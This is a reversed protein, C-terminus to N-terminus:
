VRSEHDGPPHVGARAWVQRARVILPRNLKLLSITARGISTQGIVYDGVETWIFHERWPHQRPNFLVVVDGTVPDLAEVRDGKFGNCVPCALWLNEEVTPGGRAEPLLHDVEMPFGVVEESTLCYGCRYRAQRAVRERLAIPVRTVSM